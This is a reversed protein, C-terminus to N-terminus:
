IGSTARDQVRRRAQRALDAKEMADCYKIGYIAITM